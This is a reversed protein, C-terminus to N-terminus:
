ASQNKFIRPVVVGNKEAYRALLDLTGKDIPIGEKERKKMEASSRDGAIRVPHAPNIPMTQRVHDCYKETETEIHSLGAFFDPNWITLVANSTDREGKPAPPSFGGSLGATLCDIMMSLGFGKYGQEGGMPLLSGRPNNFMVSPDITPFGDSDQIVGEPCTKGELHALRIKGIASASTAFDLAFIKGNPLPMAFAMPNTSTRGEKGGPPATFALAGNDNVTLMSAFGEASIIETWEGIRGTHGCNRVAGCVVASNKLKELLIDILRPMQIQGLGNQADAVCGAASDKIIMLDVNSNIHGTQLGKIYEPVRIIGHSDHGKRNSLVLSHATNESESTNYGGATLLATAYDQLVNQSFYM